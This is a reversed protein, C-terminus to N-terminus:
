GGGTGDGKCARSWRIRRHAGKWVDAQDNTLLSGDFDVVEVAVGRDGGEAQVATEFADRFADACSGCACVGGAKRLDYEPDFPVQVTRGAAM